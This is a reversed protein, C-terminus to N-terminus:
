VGTVGDMCMGIASCASRGKRLKVLAQALPVDWHVVQSCTEWMVPPQQACQRHIEYIMDRVTSTEKLEAESGEAIAVCGVCVERDTWTLTASPSSFAASAIAGILNKVSDPLWRRGHGAQALHGARRRLKHSSKGGSGLQLLEPESGRRGARAPLGSPLYAPADEDVPVLQRQKGSIRM